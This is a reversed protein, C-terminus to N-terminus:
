ENLFFTRLRSYLFVIVISEIFGLVSLTFALLKNSLVTLGFFVFGILFLIGLISLSDKLLIFAYTPVTREKWHDSIKPTLIIHFVKKGNRSISKIYFFVNLRLFLEISLICASVLYLHVLM